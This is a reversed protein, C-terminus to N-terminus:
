SVPTAEPSALLDDATRYIQNTVATTDDGSDVLVANGESNSDNLECLSIVLSGDTPTDTIEGCAIYIQIDEPSLQVTIAHEAGLIDDLSAEVITEIQEVRQGVDGAAPSALAQDQAGAPTAMENGAPTASLDTETLDTLPFVVEGLAM